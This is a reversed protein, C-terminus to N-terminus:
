RYLVTAFLGASSGVLTLPTNTTSWAIAIGNTVRFGNFFNSDKTIDGGDPVAFSFIPVDGNNPATAKDFIQFWLLAGSANSASLSVLEAPGVHNDRALASKFESPPTAPAPSSVLAGSEDVAVPYWVGDAANYGGMLALRPELPRDAYGGHALSAGLAGQVIGYPSQTGWLELECYGIPTAPDPGIVSTKVRVSVRLSACALGSVSLGVGKIRPEPAAINYPQLGMASFPCEAVISWITESRAWLTAVGNEDTALEQPVDFFVRCNSWRGDVTSLSQNLGRGGRAGDADIPPQAIIAAIQNSFTASPSFAAPLTQSSVDRWFNKLADWVM